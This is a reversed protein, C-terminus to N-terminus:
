LLANSILFDLIWQAHWHAEAEVPKICVPKGFSIPGTDSSATLAGAAILGYTPIQMLPAWLTLGTEGGVFAAAQQSLALNEMASLQHEFSYSVSPHTLRPLDKHRPAALIVVSTKSALLSALFMWWDWPRNRWHNYKADFLPQVAIFPRDPIAPKARETSERPPCAALPISPPNLRLKSWYGWLSEVYL